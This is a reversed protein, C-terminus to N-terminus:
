KEQRPDESPPHFGGKIWLQRSKQIFRDSRRQDNLDLRNTTSNNDGPVSSSSKPM